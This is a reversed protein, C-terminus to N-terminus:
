RKAHVVEIAKNWPCFQGNWRREKKGKKLLTINKSQLLIKICHSLFTFRNFIERRRISFNRQFEVHEKRIKSNIWVGHYAQGNTNAFTRLESLYAPIKICKRSRSKVTHIGRNKSWEKFVRILAFPFFAASFSSEKFFIRTHDSVFRFVRLKTYELRIEIHKSFSRNLTCRISLFSSYFYINFRQISQAM